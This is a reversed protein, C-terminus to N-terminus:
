SRKKPIAVRPRNYAAFEQKRLDEAKQIRERHANVISTIDGGKPHLFLFENVENMAIIHSDEAGANLWSNIYFTGGGLSCIIKWTTSNFLYTGSGGNLRSESHGVKECEERNTVEGSIKILFCSDDFVENLYRFGDGKVMRKVTYKWIPQVTERLTEKEARAAEEAAQLEARIEQISRTM